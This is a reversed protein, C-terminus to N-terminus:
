AWAEELCPKLAVCNSIIEDVPMRCSTTRHQIPDIHEISLQKKLRQEYRVCVCVCVCVYVCLIIHEISLQKKLKLEYRVSLM